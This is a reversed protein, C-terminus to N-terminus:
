RALKSSIRYSFYREIIRGKYSETRMYQSGSIIRAGTYALSRFGIIQKKCNRLQAKEDLIKWIKSKTKCLAFELPPRPTRFNKETNEHPAFINLRVKMPLSFKKANSFKVRGRYGANYIVPGGAQRSFLINVVRNTDDNWKRWKIPYVHM